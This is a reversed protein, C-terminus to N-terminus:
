DSVIMQGNMVMWHGPFSCLYPYRGPQKPAHFFISFSSGPGVIDTYGLVDDTRPIYQRIAADPEAVIANVLAGVQNLTGPRILVWNHPVVDPNNFSLRIPEGPRVQFSRVNYSLNKGAEIVITRAGPIAKRWPNPEPKVTLAVMDALIPHAAITRSRPQYDPLNTFPPALRHVTAFLEIRTEENTRMHLHLQNVPQLDPIELFLSRGDELLHARTITLPDHGAQGPHRPSLEPSGYGPSYRYNWVQAFHSTARGAVSRDLPEAFTVLVGNEHAHWATPLQAAEGTYRVRQFSGDAVTYTGWGAMGSVYLQGDAPNVRGRHSGSRFEVPLPVVAGQPQDDVRDRLLLFPRGMGFSLHVWQGSLPGFRDGSIFVQGGSSNDLGRPLYVLPLDPPRGERPGRYGYHGGPRVECVMSAPVWEGESSPVTLVGHPGLGLGDPNRLGTALVEVNRGDASIRLVGDRGSATYFRGSDDRELGCVFDHGATSTAFANSFCEYYDAEGDGNRDHLRTIQDRGLVYVNGEAIVLGLAQHLGSAFRRWRVNELTEDLGEVRWVDGQMTCLMTSGDPFFDHGGFFMLAHWPNEFPPAITDVAYPGLSGTTGRTKIEQPWQPPGGRILDALPHEAVPAVVRSFRGEKVWPADLYEVDGIRYAFIVRDGHRYFGHYVFPEVPPQGEPRPLPTGEQILGDLFGYRTASFRVFGGSWLAEYCLTEPNFCTALEGEEGLRVCVGKAVTAAHGRFVGCLLRGLDTQNWRDDAWTKEDQNGWHGLHGGDLGPFPPLLLAAPRTVFHEAEKAYFDYVRERNVPHHWSPWHEPHLPKRDYTFQAPGHPHAHALLKCADEVGPRGLDLLFRVLDRRDNLSMAALLGEPMLSGDEHIAEIDAKKIRLREGTAPDRLEIADSTEGQKHGQRILGDLTAVSIATFGEKIRRRPWLVSEVIEEPALNAGVKTLEPGVEGGQNGVRHCSLCAAEASAFVAAGHRPDGVDRAMQILTAVQAAEGEGPLTTPDQKPKEEVAELAPNVGIVALVLVGVALNRM